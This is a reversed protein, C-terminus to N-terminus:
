VGFFKSVLSKQKRPELAPKPSISARTSKALPRAPSAYKVGLQKEKRWAVRCDIEVREFPIQLTFRDSVSSAPTGGRGTTLHLRAGTSSSDVVICPVPL